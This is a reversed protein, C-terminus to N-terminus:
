ILQCKEVASIGNKNYFLIFYCFFLVWIDRRRVWLFISVFMFVCSVSVCGYVTLRDESLFDNLPSM